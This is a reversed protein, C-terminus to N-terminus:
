PFTSRISSIRGQNRNTVLRVAAAAVSCARSSIRSAAVLAAVRLAPDAEAAQEKLCTPSTSAALILTLARIARAAPSGAAQSDVAQSALLIEAEPGEARALMLM